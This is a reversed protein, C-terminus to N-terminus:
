EEGIATDVVGLVHSVAIEQWGTQLSKLIGYTEDCLGFEPRIRLRVNSKKGESAKFNQCGQGSVSALDQCLKVSHLRCSFQSENRADFNSM